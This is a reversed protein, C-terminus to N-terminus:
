QRGLDSVVSSCPPTSPRYCHRWILHCVPRFCIGFLDLRPCQWPLPSSCAAPLPVSKWSQGGFYTAPYEVRARASAHKLDVDVTASGFCELQVLTRYCESGVDHLAKLSQDNCVQLVAKWGCQAWVLKGIASIPNCLIRDWHHQVRHDCMQVIIFCWCRYQKNIKANLLWGRWSPSRPMFVERQWLIISNRFLLSWWILDRCLHAVPSHASGMARSGRWGHSYAQIHIRSYWWTQLFCWLSVDWWYCCHSAEQHASLVRSWLVLLTFSSIMSKLLSLSSDRVVRNVSVLHISLTYKFKHM